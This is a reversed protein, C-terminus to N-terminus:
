SARAALMKLPVLLKGLKREARYGDEVTRCETDLVRVARGPSRYTAWGPNGDKIFAVWAGHIEAALAAPPDEGVVQAVGDAGLADWAFPLDTCHYAGRAGDDVPSVWRFDYLWSRGPSRRTQAKADRVAPIRFVLETVLQGVVWSASRGPFRHAYTRALGPTMGVTRLAKETGLADVAPADEGLIATMENATTGILLPVNAAAGRRLSEHVTKLILEGDVVPGFGLATGSTAALQRLIEVGASKPKHAKGKGAEAVHAQGNEAGQGSSGSRPPPATVQDQLDLIQEETLSAFGARTAPVGAASAMAQTLLEAAARDGDPVFPSAAIARHFLGRARPTTMLTLVAGGGASQGAITVQMPDGGFDGINEQVWELAAVWDLVARNPPAGPILGFGDFGLRYSVSVTVIGDRNFTAGDYWPSAPSGGTFAGGHIWVLVPLGGNGGGGPRGQPRVPSPTYVDVNLTADGPVCPEPITTVDALPRRQPTPGPTTADRVGEWAEPSAPAAFRLLGVPPAAFPVGLFAASGDRWVGRVTGSTTTVLPAATQM